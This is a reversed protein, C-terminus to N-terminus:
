SISPSRFTYHCAHILGNFLCGNHHTNTFIDLPGWAFDSNTTLFQRREKYPDMEDVTLTIKNRVIHMEKKHSKQM